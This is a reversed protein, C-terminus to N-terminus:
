FGLKGVPLELSLAIPFLLYFVVTMGVATAAATGLPRRYIVAVLFFVFLFFALVFGLVKLLAACVAFGAWAYLANAVKSWDVAKGPEAGRNEVSLAMLLLSLGVMAIGFWLPFFGPGPGDPALYDWQWAELIIFVGLGALAIGSVFDGNKFLRMEEEKDRYRQPSRHGASPTLM